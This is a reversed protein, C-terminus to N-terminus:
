EKGLLLDVVWCGRVHEGDSRCHELIAANNCGADELADALIPLADFSRDAYISEVLQRVTTTICAPDIVVPYFPLPGFICRLLTARNMDAQYSRSYSVNRTQQAVQMSAKWADVRGWAVMVAAQMARQTDESRLQWIVESRRKPTKAANRLTALENQGIVGDAYSESAEVANHGEEVLLDWVQRCCAVAFLRLKRDSAKGRLFELMPQPDACALWEAETM